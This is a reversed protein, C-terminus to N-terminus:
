RGIRRALRADDIAHRRRRWSRAQRHATQRGGATFQPRYRAQRHRRTHEERDARAGQRHAGAGRRPHARRRRGHHSRRHRCPSGRGPEAVAPGAQLETIRRKAQAQLSNRVIDLKVTAAPINKPILAVARDINALERDRIREVEAVTSAKAIDRHAAAGSAMDAEDDKSINIGTDPDIQIANEADFELSFQAVFFTVLSLIVFLRLPAVYRARHGAIYGLAVRGPVVLDRLTRFIRGDLHWFSEFVEELAHGIYRMPSHVSQGCVHCYAGQLPAACNECQAPHEAAEQEAAVLEEAVHEAAAREAAAREAAAREAAAREAAAREAAAVREAAAKAEDAASPGQESM